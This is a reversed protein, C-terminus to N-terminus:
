DLSGLRNGFFGEVRLFRRSRAKSYPRPPGHSHITQINQLVVMPFHVGKPFLVRPFFTNERKGGNRTGMRYGEEKMRRKKRGASYNTEKTV